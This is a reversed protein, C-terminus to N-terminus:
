YVILTYVCGLYWIEVKGSKVNGLMRYKMWTGKNDTAHDGAMPARKYIEDIEGSAPVTTSFMIGYDNTVTLKNNVIELKYPEPDLPCARGSRGTLTAQHSPRIGMREFYKTGWLRAARENIKSPDVGAQNPLPTPPSATQPTAAPPPALAKNSDPKPVPAPGPTPAPKKQETKAIVPETKPFDRLTPQPAPEPEPVASELTPAPAPEVKPASPEPAPAPPEVPPSVVPPEAMAVPQREITLQVADDPVLAPTRTLPLWLLAFIISAHFTSALFLSSAPMAAKKAARDPRWDDM